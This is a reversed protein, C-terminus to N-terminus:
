FPGKLTDAYYLFHLLGLKKLTESVDSAQDPAMSVVIVDDEGPIYDNLAVVKKRNLRDPNGKMDTVIFGGIMLGVELLRSFVSRGIRGAGYIWVQKHGELPSFLKQDLERKWERTERLYHYFTYIDKLQDTHFWDKEKNGQLFVPYLRDLNAFLNKLLIDVPRGSLGTKRLFAILEVINVLYGHFNKPAAVTTMVSNSRYRRIFLQEPLYRIREASLVSAISFFQDEHEADEPFRIEKEILYERLWFERQVLVTWDNNALMQDALEMGTVTKEEYVGKRIDVYIESFRSRLEECEFIVRSDFLIGQLNEKEATRFLIELAEPVIMDDSDLFYVYKGKAETFGLNRGYGQKRNESLHFVKIRPDKRSYDDLIEPCRDPSADDICLIEIETLTQALVSDLCDSLYKEVGYVPIIVSVSIMPSKDEGPM